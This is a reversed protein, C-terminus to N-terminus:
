MLGPKDLMTDSVDGASGGDKTPVKTRDVDRSQRPASVSPGASRRRTPARTESRPTVDPSVAWHASRIEQKSRRAVAVLADHALATLAARPERTVSSLAMRMAGPIRSASAAIASRRLELIAGVSAPRRSHRGGRTTKARGDSRCILGWGHEQSIQRRLDADLADNGEALRFEM